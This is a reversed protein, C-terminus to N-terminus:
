LLCAADAHRVALAGGVVLAGLLDLDREETEVDVKGQDVDDQDALVNEYGEPKEAMSFAETVVKNGEEKGAVRGLRVM